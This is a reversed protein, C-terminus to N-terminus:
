RLHDFDEHRRKEKGASISDRYLGLERVMTQSIPLIEEYPPIKGVTRGALRDEYPLADNPTAPLTEAPLVEKM